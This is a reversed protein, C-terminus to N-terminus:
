LRITLTVSSFWIYYQASVSWWTVIDMDRNVDPVDQLYRRLKLQWGEDSFGQSILTLQHQDFESLFSGSDQHDSDTPSSPTSTPKSPEYESCNKWYERMVNEVVKLAEEQWNKAHKNGAAIEAAQEKAGGWALKIYHFKFYPHLILALVYATKEDFRCYYKMLKALGDKIAEHYIEYRSEKLKAEWASQLVKLAPLARYLGPHKDASFHHLVCNSDALIMKADLVRAWDFYSLTFTNWPIKKHVRGDQRLTTIPGYLQDASSIF